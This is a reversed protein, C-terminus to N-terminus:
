PSLPPRNFTPTKGHQSPKTTPLTASLRPVPSSIQCGLCQKPSIDSHFFTINCGRLMALNRGQLGAVESAIKDRQLRERM